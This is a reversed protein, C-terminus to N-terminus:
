TCEHVSNLLKLVPMLVYARFHTVAYTYTGMHAHGFAFLVSAGRFTNILVYRTHTYLCPYAQARICVSIPLRIYLLLTYAYRYTHSCTYNHVSMRIFKFTHMHMSIFVYRPSVAYFLQTQVSDVSAYICDVFACPTLFFLIYDCLYASRLSSGM